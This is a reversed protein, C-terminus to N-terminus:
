CEKTLVKYQLFLLGQRTSARLMTEIFLAVSRVLFPTKLHDALFSKTRLCFM